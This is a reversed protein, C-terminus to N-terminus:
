RHGQLVEAVVMVGVAEVGDCGFKRDEGDADLSLALRARCLCNSCGRGPFGDPRLSIEM